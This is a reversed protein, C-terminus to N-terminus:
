KVLIAGDNVDQAIGTLLLFHAAQNLPHCGLKNQTLQFARSSSCAHILILQKKKVLGEVYKKFEEPKDPPAIEFSLKM